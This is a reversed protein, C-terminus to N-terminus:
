WVGPWCTLAEPSALDTTDAWHGEAQPELHVHAPPLTPHTLHPAGEQGGREVSWAQKEAAPSCLRHQLAPCVGDKGVVLLIHGPGLKVLHTHNRTQSQSQNPLGKGIKCEAKTWRCAGLTGGVGSGSGKLVGDAPVGCDWGGGSGGGGGGAGPLAGGARGGSPGGSSM